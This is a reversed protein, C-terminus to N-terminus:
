TSYDCKILNPTKDKFYIYYQSLITNVFLESTKCMFSLNFYQNQQKTYILPTTLSQKILPGSLGKESFRIIKPVEIKM